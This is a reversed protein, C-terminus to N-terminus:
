DFITLMWSARRRIDCNGCGLSRKIFVRLVLAKYTKKCYQLGKCLTGVSKLPVKAMLTGEKNVLVSVLALPLWALADVAVNRKSGDICDNECLKPRETLVIEGDMRLDNCWQTHPANQCPGSWLVPQVSWRRQHLLQKGRWYVAHM